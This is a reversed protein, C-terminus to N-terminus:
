ALTWNKGTITDLQTQTLRAKVDAHLALTQATEVTALGDIISQISEASLKSSQAFSISFGITGEKIQITELNSCNSLFESFGSASTILSFDFIGEVSILNSQRCFMKKASRIKNRSLFPLEAKILTGSGTGEFMSDVSIFNYVIPTDIQVHNIGLCHYFCSVFYGETISAKSGFNITVEAPLTQGKFSPLTPMYDFLNNESGGSAQIEMIAGAMEGPKYTNETGNKERIADTIDALSADNVLVNAM